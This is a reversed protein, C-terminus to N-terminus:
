VLSTNIDLEESEEPLGFIESADKNTINAVAKAIQFMNTYQNLLEVDLLENSCSYNDLVLELPAYSAYAITLKYQQQQSMMLKM